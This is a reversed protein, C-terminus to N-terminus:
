FKLYLTCIFLKRNYTTSLDQNILIAHSEIYFYSLYNSYVISENPCVDDKEIVQELDVGRWRIDGRGAREGVYMCGGCREKRHTRQRM